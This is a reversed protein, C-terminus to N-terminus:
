KIRLLLPLEPVMIAKTIRELSTTAAALTTTHTGPHPMAQAVSLLSYTLCTRCHKKELEKVNSVMWTFVLTLAVTHQMLLCLTVSSFLHYRCLDSFFLMDWVRYGGFTTCLHLEVLVYLINLTNVYKSDHPRFKSARFFVLILKKQEEDIESM